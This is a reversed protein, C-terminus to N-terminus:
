NKKMIVGEMVYTDIGTLDYGDYVMEEDYKKVKLTKSKEDYVFSGDMRVGIRSISITKENICLKILM